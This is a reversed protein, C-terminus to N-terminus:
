LGKMKRKTKEMKKKFFNNKGCLVWLGKYFCYKARYKNRNKIKYPTNIEVTLFSKLQEQIKKNPTLFDLMEQKICLSQIIMRDRQMFSIGEGARYKVLVEQINAIKAYHIFCSWFYYDEAPVYETNFILNHKKLIDHRAMMSSNILWPSYTLVNFYSFIEPPCWLEKKPFVEAWSGVAGVDTHKKLYKLQKEFRKPLAIDDSDLIAIYEGTANKLGLNRAIAAGSNTQNKLYKIKECHYSEVISKVDIKKSCDDIIILEWDSITQSFVSDIAERLYKEPTNYVPMIVSIIPTKNKM